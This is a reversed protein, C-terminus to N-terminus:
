PGFAVAPSGEPALRLLQRFPPPAAFRTASPLAERGGPAISTLGAFFRTRGVSAAARRVFPFCAPVITWCLPRGSSSLAMFTATFSSCGAHFRSMSAATFSSPSAVVSSPSASPSSSSSVFSGASGLVGGCNRDRGVDLVCCRRWRSSMGRRSSGGGSPKGAPVSTHALTQLPLLHPLPPTHHGPRTHFSRFQRFFFASHRKRPAGASGRARTCHKPSPVKTHHAASSSTGYVPSACARWRRAASSMENVDDLPLLVFFRVPPTLIFVVLTFLANSSASSASSICQSEGHLSLSLSLSSLSVPPPPPTLCQESPLTAASSSRGMASAKAIGPPALVPTLAPALASAPALSLGATSSRLLSPSVGSQTMSAPHRMKPRFTDVTSWGIMVPRSSGHVLLLRLGFMGASFVYSLCCSPKFCSFGHRPYWTMRLGDYSDCTCHRNILRAMLSTSHPKQGPTSSTHRLEVSVDYKWRRSGNGRTNRRRLAM